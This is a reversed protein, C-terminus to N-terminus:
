RAREVALEARVTTGSVVEVEPQVLRLEREAMSVTWRGPMVEPSRLLGDEAVLRVSSSGERELSFHIRELAEPPLGAITIEVRGAVEICLEGMDTFGGPEVQFPASTLLERGGGAIQVRYRGPVVEVEFAGSAEPELFHGEGAGEMWLTMTFGDPRSGAPAVFRGGLTGKVVHADAVVIVLEQTGTPVEEVKARPHDDLDPSRVILEHASEGLNALLFRGESDTAARRPYWWRLLPAESQVSWSALPVGDEGTVRGSITHGLDLHLECTATEGAACLVSARARGIEPRDYDSANLERLGPAVWDLAFWGHEDTISESPAFRDHYWGGRDEESALVTVGAAPAGDIGLLRGEIRAARELRIDISTAQGAAVEVEGRWVPFGRATAHIPHKGPPLDSRLEFVGQEDTEAFAPEPATGPQAGSTWGGDPGALVGARELPSGDPDLVRGRVSGGGAGLVLRVSRAGNAGAEMDIPNWGQSPLHGRKRAGVASFADVDRLRFTGDSASTALLLGGPWRASSLGCWIEAGGVPAGDADVVTGEVTFCETLTFEFDRSTGAEVEADFRDRDLWIRVPGAFLDEVTARGDGGTRARFV